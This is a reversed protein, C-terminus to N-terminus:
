NVVKDQLEGEPKDEDPKLENELVAIVGQADALQASLNTVQSTLSQIMANIHIQQQNNEM